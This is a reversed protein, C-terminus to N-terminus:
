YYELIIEENVDLDFYQGCKVMIKLKGSGNKESEFEVYVDKKGEFDSFVPNTKLLKNNLLFIIDWNITKEMPLYPSHLTTKISKGLTNLLDLDIEGKM